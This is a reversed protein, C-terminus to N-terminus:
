LLSRGEEVDDVSVKEKSISSNQGDASAPASWDARYNWVMASEGRSWAAIAIVISIVFPCVLVAGILSLFPGSDRDMCVDSQNFNILVEGSTAEGPSDSSVKQVLDHECARSWISSTSSLILVTVGMALASYFPKVVRQSTGNRRDECHARLLGAFTPVVVPEGIGPETEGAEDEAQSITLEGQIPIRPEYEELIKFGASGNVKKTRALVVDVRYLAAVMTGVIIGCLMLPQCTLIGAVAQVSAPPEKTETQDKKSSELCGKVFEIQTIGYVAAVLSM